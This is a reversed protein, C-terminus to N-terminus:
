LVQSRIVVLTRNHEDSGRQSHSEVGGQTIKRDLLYLAQNGQPLNTLDRFVYSVGAYADRM